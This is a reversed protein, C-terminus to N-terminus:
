DSSVEKKRKLTLIRGLQRTLLRKSANNRTYLDMRSELIKRRIDSEADALKATTLTLLEEISLKSFEM